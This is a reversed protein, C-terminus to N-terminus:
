RWTAKKVLFEIDIDLNALSLAAYKSNWEVTHKHFWVGCLLREHIGLHLPKYVEWMEINDFSRGAMHSLEWQM